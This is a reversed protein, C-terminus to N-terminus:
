QEVRRRYIDIDPGPRERAMFDAYPVFFMDQRDFADPREGAATARFTSVLSYQSDVIPMLGEPITTYVALPSRAVVVWTPTVAERKDSEFLGRQADFRGIHLSQPRGWVPHVISAPIECVWDTPGIKMDLWNAAMVRTDTQVILRDFAIVRRISPLAVLIALLVLFTLSAWRSRRGLVRAVEVVAVAATLCLFPTIPIMYRVFVTYGRGLILYYLVPFTCLFAAKRWARVALVPMGVLSAILLPTGLGYRLSFTLHYLWGRGLIVGHGESLHRSDFRLGELFARYDIVSFPTGVVFALLAAALFAVTGRTIASLPIRERSATSGIVAVVLGVAVLVGGNYKTSAALGVFVGGTIWSRIPTPDELARSLPLLAAVALCTMPVDLM